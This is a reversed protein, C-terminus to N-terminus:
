HSKAPGGARGLLALHQSSPGPSANGSEPQAGGTQLEDLIARYNQGPLEAGPAALLRSALSHSCHRAAGRKDELLWVLWVIGRNPQQMLGSHNGGQVRLVPCFYRGGRFQRWPSYWTSAIALQQTEDRRCFPVISGGGGLYRFWKKAPIRVFLNPQNQLGRHVGQNTQLTERLCGQSALSRAQFRMEDPNHAQTACHPCFGLYALTLSIGALPPLASTILSPLRTGLRPVVM